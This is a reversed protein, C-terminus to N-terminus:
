IVKDSKEYLLATLIVNPDYDIGREALYDKLLDSDNGIRNNEYNDTIGFFKERFKWVYLPFYKEKCIIVLDDGYQYVDAENFGFVRANEEEVKGAYELKDFNMMVADIKKEPDLQWNDYAELDTINKNEDAIFTCYHKYYYVFNNYEVPSYLCNNAEEEETLSPEHVNLDIIIDENEHLEHLTVASHLASITDFPNKPVASETEASVADNKATTTESSIEPESDSPIESTGSIKETSPTNNEPVSTKKSESSTTEQSIEHATNLSSESTDSIEAITVTDNEPVISESTNCATLLLSLAATLSILSKKANKRM